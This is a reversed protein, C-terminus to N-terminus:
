EFWNELQLGDFHVFDSTNRTVLILHNTAAIAAIQGDPYSPTLGRSVLRSRETAFWRAAETTYPLIPMNIDILENLYQELNQRRRSIPLRETGFWLEHWSVSSIVVEPYHQAIRNAVTPNPQPKTPEAIINTDLLYRM